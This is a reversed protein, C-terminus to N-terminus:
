KSVRSQIQTPGRPRRRVPPPASEKLADAADHLADTTADIADDLDDKYPAVQNKEALEKLYILFGPARSQMGKISDRIDEQREVGVQILDSGDEICGTYANILANIREDRHLERPHAFEYRLEKIRDAAFSVFLKIREASTYADRIQDAETESLYEKKQGFASSITASM